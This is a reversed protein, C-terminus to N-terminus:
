GNTSTEVFTGLCWRLEWMELEERTYETGRQEDTHSHCLHTPGVDKNAIRIVLRWADGDRSRLRTGARYLPTDSCHKAVWRPIADAGEFRLTFPGLPHEPIHLTREDLVQFRLGLRTQQTPPAESM